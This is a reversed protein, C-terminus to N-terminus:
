WNQTKLYNIDSYIYLQGCLLCRDHDLLEFTVTDRSVLLVGVKCKPCISKFISNDSYRELNKHEVIVSPQHLNCGALKEHM